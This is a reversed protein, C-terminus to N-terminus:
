KSCLLFWQHVVVDYKLSLCPGKGVSGLIGFGIREERRRLKFGWFVCLVVSVHGVGKTGM